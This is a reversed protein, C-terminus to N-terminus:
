TRVLDLVAFCCSATNGSRPSKLSLLDNIFAVVHQYVKQYLHRSLSVRSRKAESPTNNIYQKDNGIEFVRRTLAKILDAPSLGLLRAAHQVHQDEQGIRAHEQGTIAINGLHLLAALLDIIKDLVQWQFSRLEAFADRGIHRSKTGLIKYTHEPNLGRHELETSSLNRLLQYFVHFNAQDDPSRTVRAQELLFISVNAGVLRGSEFM